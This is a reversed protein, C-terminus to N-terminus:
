CLGKAIVIFVLVLTALGLSGSVALGAGKYQVTLAGALGTTMGAVGTAVIAAFGLARQGQLNADFFIVGLCLLVLVFGLGIMTKEVVLAHQLQLIQVDVPIPQGIKPEYKKPM